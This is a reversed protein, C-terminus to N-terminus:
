NRSAYDSERLPARYYGWVPKSAAELCIKMGIAVALAIAALTAGATWTLRTM